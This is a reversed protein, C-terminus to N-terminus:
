ACPCDRVNQMLMRWDGNGKLGWGFTIQKDHALDIRAHMNLYLYAEGGDSGNNSVDKYFDCGEAGFNYGYNLSGDTNDWAATVPNYKGGSSELSGCGQSTWVQIGELRAGNGDTQQAWDVSACTAIDRYTVCRWPTSYDVTGANAPTVSMVTMTLAMAMGLILVLFKKM